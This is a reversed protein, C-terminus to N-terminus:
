GKADLALAHNSSVIPSSIMFFALSYALFVAALIVLLTLVGKVVHTVSEAIQDNQLHPM